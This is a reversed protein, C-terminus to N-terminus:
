RGKSLLEGHTRLKERERARGTEAQQCEGAELTGCLGFSISVTVADLVAIPVAVAAPYPEMETVITIPVMVTPLEAWPLGAECGAEIQHTWAEELDVNSKPRPCSTKSFRL